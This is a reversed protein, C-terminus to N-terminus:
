PLPLHRGEPSRLKAAQELAALDLRPANHWLKELNYFERIPEHFVHVILDACDILVWRGGAHGEVGLPPREIRKQSEVIADAIAQVQRDSRGSCILFYDAFSSLTRVDLLVPRDAKKDLAALVAIRSKERSSLDDPKPDPNTKKIM